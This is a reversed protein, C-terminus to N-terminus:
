KFIQNALTQGTFESVLPVDQQLVQVVPVELVLEKPAEKKENCGSGFLLAATLIALPFIKSSM